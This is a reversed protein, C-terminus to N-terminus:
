VVKKETNAALGLYYVMFSGIMVIGLYGNIVSTVVIMFIKAAAAPMLAGIMGVIFGFLLGVGLSILILIVFLLLLLFVRTFPKKAVALGRKMSAIVGLEECVLAYPSLALPIFYSLLAVVGIAIAIAIAISSILVNNLDATAAILLAAVLAVIGIILVILVGLILLKIYYKAGYSTFSALKMKGEKITDRVLGLAGGQIFISILVFIATFILAGTLMEPPLTQGTTIAFPMSAFSGIMNVIIMILVLGLGKSAIGFGRKVAEFVGTM